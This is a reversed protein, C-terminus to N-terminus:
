FLYELKVTMRSKNRLLGESINLYAGELYGLLQDTFGYRSRLRHTFDNDQLRYSVLYELNLTEYLFDKSWMGTIASENRRVGQITKERDPIHQLSGELGLTYAGNASYELGLAMGFTDKTILGDVKIDPDAQFTKNFKYALEGKWLFNGRAFNAASGLMYFHPYQALLRTKVEPTEGQYEYVPQNMVLDGAMFALDSKGFTRKWRFAYETEGWEPKEQTIDFREPDYLGMDYETGAETLRDTRPYPTIIVSWTGIQSYYDALLSLQGLRANDINTYIWESLDRPSIVDTIVAGEAEGWVIIQQGAVLSFNGFSSQLYGERLEGEFAFKKKEAETIHDNPLYLTVKGDFVAYYYDASFKSWELRLSSRNTVIHDEEFNYSFEQRFTFRRDKWINYFLNWDGESIGRTEPELGIDEDDLTSGTEEDFSGFEEEENDLSSGEEFLVDEEDLLSDEEFLVDEEDLSTEAEELLEEKADLSELTKSSTKQTRGLPTCSLFFVLFFTFFIIYKLIRM